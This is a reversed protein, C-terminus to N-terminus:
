LISKKFFAQADTQLTLGSPTRADMGYLTLPSKSAKKKAKGSHKGVNPLNFNLAKRGSGLDEIGSKKFEEILKKEFSQYDRLEFNNLNKKYFNTVFNNIAKTQEDIKAHPGAIKLKESRYSTKRPLSKIADTENDFPGIKIKAPEISGKGTYNPNRVEFLTSGKNEGAKIKCM